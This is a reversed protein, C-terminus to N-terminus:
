EVRFIPAPEGSVSIGQRGFQMVDCIVIIRMIVMILVLECGVEKFRM